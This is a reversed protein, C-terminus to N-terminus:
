YLFWNGGEAKITASEGNASLEYDTDNEIQQGGGPQIVVKRAAGPPTFHVNKIQLVLGEFQSADPLNVTRNATQPDMNITHDLQTATTDSDTVRRMPHRTGVQFQFHGDAHVQYVPIEAVGGTPQRVFQFVEGTAFRSIYGTDVKGQDLDPIGWCISTFPTSLFCSEAIDIDPRNFADATDALDLGPATLAWGGFAVGGAYRSDGPQETYNWAEGGGQAGFAEIRGCIPTTADLEDILERTPLNWNRFDIEGEAFRQPRALLVPFAAEMTAAGFSRPPMDRRRQLLLPEEPLLGEDTLIRKLDRKAAEIAKQVDEDSEIEREEEGPIRILRPRRTIEIIPPEFPPDPPIPPTIPPIYIFTEAQLRWASKRKAGGIWDHDANYDCRMHARTLHPLQPVEVYATPDFAIPGDAKNNMRFLAGTHIHMSFIPHGDGDVGAQHQDGPGGVDWPGFEAKRLLGIARDTPPFTDFTEEPKPDESTTEFTYRMPGRPDYVLKGNRTSRFPDTSPTTEKDPTVPTSVGLNPEDIAMGGYGDGLGTKGLVLALVEGPEGPEAPDNPLDFKGTPNFIVRTLTQLFAQRKPDIRSERDLDSVISGMLPDGAAHAAILRDDASFWHEHQERENSSAVVLGYSGGPPRSWLRGGGERPPTTPFLPAYRFDPRWLEDVPLVPGVPESEPESAGFIAPFGALVAFTSGLLGFLDGTGGASAPAEETDGTIVQAPWAWSFSPMPRTSAPWHVAGTIDGVDQGSATQRHDFIWQGSQGPGDARGRIRVALVSARNDVEWGDQEYGIHWFPLVGPGWITRSDGVFM